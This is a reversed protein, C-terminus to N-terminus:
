VERDDGAGRRTASEPDIPVAAGEGGPQGDSGTDAAIEGGQALYQSQELGHRDVSEVKPGDALAATREVGASPPTERAMRRRMENTIIDGLPEFTRFDDDYDDLGDRLNFKSSGFLRRLALRQLEESVKPSLFASYDSDAHLTDLPPPEQPETPTGEDARASESADAPPRHPTDVLAPETQCRAAQKRRSWRSVFGEPEAGDTRSDEQTDDRTIRPEGGSKRHESM